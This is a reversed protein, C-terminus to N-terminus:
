AEPLDRLKVRLRGTEPGGLDTHIELARRLAQAAPAPDGTRVAVDALAEQAQAEFHPYPGLLAIAQALVAVAEDGRGLRGFTIGLTTLVRGRMRDDAPEGLEDVLTRARVLVDLAEAWRGRDGLSRGHFYTTFAVGRADANEAFLTLATEYARDAGAPEVHDYHRALMEWVSALLRRDGAAEALPLAAALEKGAREADGLDTWARSVFSRLRAEAAANGVVQASNAGVQSSDTWDVLYRRSVYLATVSEALQWCLDHWGRDAAVRVAALINAREQDLWELARAKRDEGAFPDTVGQVVEDHPTIRLRGTGLVALDAYVTRFLLYRVMRHLAEVQEDEPEEADAQDVAHRRALGHFSFRGDTNEGLLGAGVLEDLLEEAVAQEVGAAVAALGATFDRCPLVGLLRYMRRAAEGLDQYSLTFVASVTRERGISLAHLGRSSDAIEAVLAGVSLSPRDRLRAAAVELAIPLRGCQEVLAALADPENRARRCVGTILKESSARDLPELWLLEAGDLSLEPLRSTSTVLVASGRATPVLPRVQGTESVDDLVVLVPEDATHSRFLKTLEGLSSPIVADAVDLARLCSVLADSVATDPSDRLETFDVYLVGGPYSDRAAEVVQCVLTSKGVGPMGGVVVIRPSSRRGTDVLRRARALERRRNVFRGKAAPVQCPVRARYAEAPASAQTLVVTEIKEIRGAQLVSGAAGSMLNHVELSDEPSDPGVGAGM